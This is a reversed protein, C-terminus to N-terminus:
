YFWGFIKSILHKNSKGFQDDVNASVSPKIRGSGLAILVLGIALVKEYSFGIGWATDIFALALHVVCYIISLWRIPCCNGLFGDALIAGLIPLFYVASVFTAFWARAEADGMPSLQGMRNVLYATMFVTLISRMGYFSFREAAENGIIYPVGPPMTSINPPKTAYQHTAM